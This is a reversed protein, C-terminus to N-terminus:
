EWRIFERMRWDNGGLDRAASQMQLGLVGQEWGCERRLSVQLDDGDSFNGVHVDMAASAKDTDPDHVLLVELRNPLQIVRYSRNDLDPQELQAAIIKATAAQAGDASAM